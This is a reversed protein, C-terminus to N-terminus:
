RLFPRRWKNRDYSLLSEWQELLQSLDYHWGVNQPMVDWHGSIDLDNYVKIGGKEVTVERAPFDDTFDGNRFLCAETPEITFTYVEGNLQVSFRGCYFEGDKDFYKNHLVPFYGESISRWFLADYYQETQEMIGKIKM